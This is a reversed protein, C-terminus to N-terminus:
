LWGEERLEGAAANEEPGIAAHAKSQLLRALGYYIWGLGLNLDEDTQNHGMRLLEPHRYLRAIWATLDLTAAPNAPMRDLIAVGPESGM